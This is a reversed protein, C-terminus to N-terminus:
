RVTGIQLNTHFANHMPCEPQEKLHVRLNTHFASHMPCEPQEKLHVRERLLRQIIRNQCIRDILLHRRVSIDIRELEIERAVRFGGQFAIVSVHSILYLTINVDGHAEIVFDFLEERYCPRDIKTPVVNFCPYTSNTLNHIAHYNLSKYKVLRFDCKEIVDRGAKVDSDHGCSVKKILTIIKRLCMGEGNEALVNVEQVQHLPKRV